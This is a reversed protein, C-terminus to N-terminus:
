DCDFVLLTKGIQALPKKHRLFAWADSSESLGSLSVPSIIVLGNSPPSDGFKLHTARDGIHHRVARNSVCVPRIYLPRNAILARNDDIWQAARRLSQGWDINSDSIKLHVNDRPFNVYAITDPHWRMSEVATFLTALFLITITWRHACRLALMIALIYAPLFHRWGIQIPQIMAFITYVILPIALMLEERRPKRWLLSLLGLMFVAAISLPTKYTALVPFYYWWGGRRIQGHLFADNPAATHAHADLISKIYLGAALPRERAPSVDFFLLLWIAIVAFFAITALTTLRRIMPQCSMGCLAYLLFVIPVIVATHKILLAAACSLAAVLM